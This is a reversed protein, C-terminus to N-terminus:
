VEVFVALRGGWLDRCRWVESLVQLRPQWMRMYIRLAHRCSAHACTHLVVRVEQTSALAGPLRAFRQAVVEDDELYDPKRLNDIYACRWKAFEEDGVGLKAQGRM